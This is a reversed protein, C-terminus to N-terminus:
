EAERFTSKFPIFLSIGANLTMVNQTAGKTTGAPQDVYATNILAVNVALYDKAVFRMGLGLDAAVNPGRDPLTSTETNVVGAGGLVYGDFHLISNFIAVKGYLPSWEVDAMASWIPVSFFIRSRFSSKATRVDETPVVQMLSFRASVALTDALYYAGRLALGFKNYYPDNVSASIYPALEFRSKKLYLKRQVSKVRDEQTIDREVAPENPKAVVPKRTESPEPPPTAPQDAPSAMPEEPKKAPDETLDLGEFENQARASLPVLVLALTAALTRIM